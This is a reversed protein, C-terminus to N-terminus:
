NWNGKGDSWFIEGVIRNNDDDVEQEIRTQGGQQTEM